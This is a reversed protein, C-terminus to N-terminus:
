GLQSLRVVEAEPTYCNEGDLYRQVVSWIQHTWEAPIVPRGLEQQFKEATWEDLTRVGSFDFMRRPLFILDAPEEGDASYRREGDVPNYHSFWAECRQRFRWQPPPWYVQFRGRGSDFDKAFELSFAHIAQLCIAFM